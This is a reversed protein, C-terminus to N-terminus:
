DNQAGENKHHEILWLVDDYADLMGQLYITPQEKVEKGWDVYTKLRRELEEITM